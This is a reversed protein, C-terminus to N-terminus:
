RISKGRSTVRLAVANEPRFAFVESEQSGVRLQLVLGNRYKGYMKKEENVGLSFDEGSEVHRVELPM